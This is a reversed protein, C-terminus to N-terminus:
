KTHSGNRLISQLKLTTTPFSAQLASAQAPPAPTPAPSPAQHPPLSSTQQPTTNSNLAAIFGQNTKEEIALMSMVSHLGQPTKIAKKMKKKWSDGRKLNGEKDGRDDSKRKTGGNGAAARSKRMIKKGEQSKMFNRLENKQDDNLKKFDNSSHWRLDVGTTGRGASFDISGVNAPKSPTGANGIRNSRRYPDVEILASAASEFDERMNNTNARILGISAQLTSDSCTISDILYEVRQPEDPVAVTIHMSCDRLDDVANRHNSVHSELPYARGNWKLTQLLHMRKKMISRYKVDGAHNAIIALFAGRGDKRRAFSKVTSEVSTGRAAKEVMMYVTGNDNKFIAGTHPLRAILEDLLGGSSGHYSQDLLPDDIESPVEVADRLVYALPGRSGFTRSVCDLFIPAWKIVKRDNDKDNILPVTPDDQSKLSEYDEWELKFNSLVNNYHMSSPSKARGISTYYIAAQMAIILRRTSITSINAGPVAAEAATGAQADAEIAPIHEKCVSPLTQISKKDFDLLSDYNTIGECIIRNVASDTVLKMGTNAKLWNKFAASVPM